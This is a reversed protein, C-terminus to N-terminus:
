VKPSDLKGELNTPLILDSQDKYKVMEEEKIQCTKFPSTEFIASKGSTSVYKGCDSLVPHVVKYFKGQSM